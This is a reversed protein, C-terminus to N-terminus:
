GPAPGPAPVAIRVPPGAAGEARALRGAVRASKRPGSHWRRGPPLAEASTTMGGAHQGERHAQARQRRHGAQVPQDLATAGPTLPVGTNHASTCGAAEEMTVLTLVSSSMRGSLGLGALAGARDVHRGDALGVGPAPRRQDVQVPQLLLQLAAAFRPVMDGGHQQELLM